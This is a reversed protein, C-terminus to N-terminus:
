FPLSLPELFLGYPEYNLSSTELHEIYKLDPNDIILQYINLENTQYKSGAPIKTFKYGAPTEYCLVEAAQRCAMINKFIEPEKEKWDEESYGTFKKLQQLSTKSLPNFMSFFEQAPPMNKSIHNHLADILPYSSLKIMLNLIENERKKQVEPITTLSKIITDARYRDYATARVLTQFIGIGHNAKLLKQGQYARIATISSLHQIFTKNDYIDNTNQQDGTAPLNNHLM